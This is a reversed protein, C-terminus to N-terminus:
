IGAPPPPFTQLPSEFDLVRVAGITTRREWAYAWQLVEPRHVSNRTFGTWTTSSQFFASTQLNPLSPWQYPQQWSATREM